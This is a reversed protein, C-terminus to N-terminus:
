TRCCRSPPGGHVAVKWLGARVPGTDYIIGDDGSWDLSVVTNETSLQRPEGTPQLGDLRQVFVNGGWYGVNRRVFALHRGDHSVVPHSDAWHKSPSTLQRREGTDLTFAHIVVNPSSAQEIAL